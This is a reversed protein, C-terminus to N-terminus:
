TRKDEFVDCSPTRASALTGDDWGGLAEDMMRNMRHLGSYLEPVPETARRTVNMFM